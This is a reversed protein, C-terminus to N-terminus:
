DNDLQLQGTCYGGLCANPKNINTNFIKIIVFRLRHFWPLLEVVMWYVLPMAVCVRPFLIVARFYFVCESLCVQYHPCFIEFYSM